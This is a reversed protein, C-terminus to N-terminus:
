EFAFISTIENSSKINFYKKRADGYLMVVFRYYM